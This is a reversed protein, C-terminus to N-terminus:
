IQYQAGLADLLARAKLWSEEYEEAADSDITIGGGVNFIAQGDRIVMTRIAVSLDLHSEDGVIGAPLYVGIAGMSLGRPETELRDIIQMTGHKPAGTISGCPFLARVIDSPQTDDVLKGEITSVLHFLTPLEQLACLEKVAVSGYECVRGLDNRLLDTIMVNEARDKNSQLLEARLRLDEDADTGRRRTGKIPSAQIRRGDVGFFREPSASIVTSNGREVYAAFPAPNRRRLRAFASQPLFDSPLDVTLQQTLNTQYTDGQRILGKIEEVRSLYESRTFNSRVSPCSSTNEFSPPTESRALAKKFRQTDGHLKTVGNRYDHILLSDFGAAFLDPETDRKAATEGLQLKHGFEYSLTFIVPRDGRLFQDLATLTSPVDGALNFTDVPEIGAILRASGPHDANCSDLLCLRTERASALLKPVFEDPSLDRPQM